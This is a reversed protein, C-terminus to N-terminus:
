QLGVLHRGRDGNAELNMCSVSQMNSSNTSTVNHGIHLSVTAETVSAWATVDQNWGMLKQEARHSGTLSLASFCCGNTPASPPAPNTGAGGPVGGTEPAGVSM